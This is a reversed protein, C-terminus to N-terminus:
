SNWDPLRLLSSIGSTRIMDSIQNRQLCFGALRYSIFITNELFSTHLAAQAADRLLHRKHKNGRWCTGSHTVDYTIPLDKQATAELVDRKLWHIISWSLSYHLTWTSAQGWIQNGLSNPSMPLMNNFSVTLFKLWLRADPTKMSLFPLQLLVECYLGSIRHSAKWCNWSPKPYVM